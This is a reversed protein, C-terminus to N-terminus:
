KGKMVDLAMGGMHVVLVCEAVYLHNEMMILLIEM